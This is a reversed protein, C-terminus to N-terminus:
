QIRKKREWDLLEFSFEENATDVEELGWVKKMEGVGSHFWLWPGLIVTIKLM